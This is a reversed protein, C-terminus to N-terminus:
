ARVEQQNNGTGNAGTGNKRHSSWILIIAPIALGVPHAELIYLDLVNSIPHQTPAQGLKHSVWILVVAPAASLIGAVILVIKPAQRFGMSLLMTVFMGGFFGSVARFLLAPHPLGAFLVVYTKHASMAVNALGLIGTILARLSRTGNSPKIYTSIFYLSVPVFILFWITQM